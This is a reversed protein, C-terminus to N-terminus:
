RNATGIVIDVGRDLEEKERRFMGKVKGQARRNRQNKRGAIGLGLIGLKCYKGIEKAVGTVQQVLERSPMVILVRPRNQMTIKQGQPNKEDSEFEKKIRNQYEQKEKESLYQYYFPLSIQEPGPIKKLKENKEQKPGIYNLVNEGASILEEEKLLQFIPLLYCLTKGSGTASGIFFNHNKTLLSHISNNQISTPTYIEESELYEHLSTLLNLHKFSLYQEDKNIQKKHKRQPKTTRNGHQDILIGKTGTASRPQSNQFRNRRRKSFAQQISGSTFIRKFNQKKLLNKSKLRTLRKTFQKLM